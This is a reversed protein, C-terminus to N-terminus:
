PSYISVLAHGGEHYATMKKEQESMVMSKREAGMMVKDKAAELDRMTVVKKGLRAALLAAENVINALDAGSFGPTGRAIIKADVDPGKPVKKLHVELIK